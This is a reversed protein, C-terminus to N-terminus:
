AEVYSPIYEEYGSIDFEQEEAYEHINTYVEQDWQQFFEEETIMSKVYQELLSNRVSSTDGAAFGAVNISGILTKNFPQAMWAELVKPAKATKTAGVRAGAMEEVVINMNETASLFKLYDMAYDLVKEERGQLEPKM